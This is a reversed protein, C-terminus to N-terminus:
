RPDVDYYQTAVIQGDVKLVAIVDNRNPTGGRSKVSPAV